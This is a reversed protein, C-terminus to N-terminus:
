AVIPPRRDAWPRAQELQAAVRLLLDERGYAAVLQVGIPLGTASWALPLSIAPQGTMNFPGTFACLAQARLGATLPDVGHFSGLAWPPEPLTPTLLLDFGSAWWDAVRRTYAFLWDATGLYQRASVASGMEALAWNFPEVDDAGLQRGILQGVADLIRATSTAFMVSFHQFTEQDDLAAPHSAEVRHGLDALLAAAGDAAAACQPDVAAVGSPAKTMVGIRLTGASAGVEERYPRRPPPAGYPDGAMMGEVVDLYAATDRVTRSVCGEVALGGVGDGLDPGFSIRGRSPKMGVVGCASAPIRISGGGDNAHAVAVVGAAVAAASGGSSGGPSRAADWPNHAPGYALSETSPITGLEPVNTRGLFLFGAQRLKAVLHTDHPAVFGADRLARMGMHYADGASYGFIDKLLMPVGHFAGAPLQPDIAAARAKEYLPTIIANLEPNVREARAIAAAVLEHPAVEGRRVLEAQAVADLWQYPDSM